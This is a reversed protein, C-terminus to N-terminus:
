QLMQLAQKHQMARKLYLGAKRSGPSILLVKKMESICASYNGKQYATVGKKEMSPVRYALKKRLETLKVDADILTHDIEDYKELAIFSLGKDEAALAKNYINRILEIREVYRTTDKYTNRINLVKRFYVEAAFADRSSFAKVGKNYLPEIEKDRQVGKRSVNVTVGSRFRYGVGCVMQVSRFTKDSLDHECYEVGIRCVFHESCPIFAGAKIFYGPKWTDETRGSLDAEFRIYHASLSAGAYPMFFSFLPYYLLLGAGASVDYLTSQESEQITYYSGAFAAEIMYFSSSYPIISVGGTIGTHLKEEYYGGPFSMGGHIGIIRSGAPDESGFVTVPFFYQLILVVICCAGATTFIKKICNM